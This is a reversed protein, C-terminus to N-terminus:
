KKKSRCKQASKRNQILRKQKKEEESLIEFENSDFAEVNSQQDYDSSAKSSSSASKTRKGLLPTVMDEMVYKSDNENQKDAKFSRM